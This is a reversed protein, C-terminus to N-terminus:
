MSGPADVGLLTLANNLVQRTAEALYLRAGSLEDDDSVIRCNHYFQHFYAALEQAYAALRHPERAGAAAEVIYPFFMLHAMLTREEERLLRNLDKAFSKVGKERAFRVVSSIRAHAYQVYYVPNEESQKRALQLDFDLPTNPRRMLFFYKAVDNGVDEVLERMTIFEGARKSMGVPKGGEILRVWGIILVELWGKRAGLVDSAAQMRRIHGHHDPGWIDIVGEFGRRLKSLHYAADGLFYTADGNTKKLVRDKEDGLRSSSFYLAGDSSYTYGKEEFIRLVESVYEPHLSSERFYNEFKIGFIGLDAKISKLLEETAYAGLAPANMTGSGTWAEAQEEPIDRAIKKMYEGPYAGIEEGDALLGFREKLRYKLSDGLAAIQRGYDNVYYEGEVAHGTFALLNVISSGIAAARASVVVLPGTPNASIYEVQWRAGKGMDSSGYEEKHYHVETLNKQLIRDALKLNIFGPKVVDVSSILDKPFDAAKVIAEALDIPHKKYKGALTLAIPVAIDGHEKAKPKELIVASIDDASIGAAVLADAFIRKLEDKIRM